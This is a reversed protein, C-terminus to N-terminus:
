WSDILNYKNRYDQYFVDLPEYRILGTPQTTIYGWLRNVLYVKSLSFSSL